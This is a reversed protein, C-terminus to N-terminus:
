ELDACAIKPHDGGPGHVFVSLPENRARWDASGEGAAEGDEDAQLGATPDTPDSSPWLENPPEEAGEPDHRYHPGRDACSGEHLHAPHAADPELGSVEVRLTTGDASRTLRAEGTIDRDTNDALPEFAGTLTGGEEGADPDDAAEPTPQGGTEAPIDGTGTGTGTDGGGAGADCGAAAAVLAVAALLLGRATVTRPM